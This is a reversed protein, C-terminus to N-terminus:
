GSIIVKSCPRLLGCQSNVYEVLVTQPNKRPGKQNKLIEKAMTSTMTYECTYVTM